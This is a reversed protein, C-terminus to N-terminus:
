NAPSSGAGKRRPSRSPKAVPKAKATKAASTKSAASTAARSKRVPKESSVATTGEQDSAASTSTSASPASLPSTTATAAPAATLQASLRALLDAQSAESFAYSGVHTLAFRKSIFIRGGLDRWRNCFLWDESMFVKAGFLGCEFFAYLYQNISPDLGCDDTYKLEPMAEAMRSFVERKLLLFGTGIREVEAKGDDAEGDTIPNIVYDIPLSKKPYGGGIVEVDEQLLMLIYEPDFGIDADLFMLHTARPNHMARAVLANRGRPILSENVLTDLSWELGLQPARAIFRVFSTFTVESIQGGYCPILFHIHM